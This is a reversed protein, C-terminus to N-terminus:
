FKATLMGIGTRSISLKVQCKELTISRQTKTIAFIHALYIHKFSDIYHSSFKSLRSKDIRRNSVGWTTAVYVWERLSLILNFIQTM